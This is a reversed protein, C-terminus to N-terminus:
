SQDLDRPSSVIYFICGFIMQFILNAFVRIVIVKNKITWGNQSKTCPGARQLITFLCPLKIPLVILCEKALHTNLFRKPPIALITVDAENCVDMARKGSVYFQPNRMRRSHRFRNGRWQSWIFGSTLSGPMCWPVHTVDHDTNPDGVLPPPTFTGPMGPKHAVRLKVYRTLPGHWSKM